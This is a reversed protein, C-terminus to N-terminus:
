EGDYVLSPGVIKKRNLLMWRSIVISVIVLGAIAFLEIWFSYTFFNGTGGVIHGLLALTVFAPVIIVINVIVAWGWVKRVFVFYAVGIRKLGEKVSKQRKVLFQILFIPALIIFVFLFLPNPFPIKWGRSSM